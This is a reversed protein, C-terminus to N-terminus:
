NSWAPCAKGNGKASPAAVILPIRASEEFTSMKQWLGHQYLHYGNDGWFSSSPAILLASATSRTSCSASKPM